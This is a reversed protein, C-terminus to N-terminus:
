TGEIGIWVIDSTFIYREINSGDAAMTTETIHPKTLERQLWRRHAHYEQESDFEQLSGWMTSDLEYTERCRQWNYHELSSADLGLGCPCTQDAQPAPSFANHYFELMEGHACVVQSRTIHPEFLWLALYYPQNMANLQAQWSAYITHLGNVIKTRTKGHPQPTHSNTVRLGNYPPIAVPAVFRNSSTVDLTAYVSQWREILRWMRRHGRTNFFKM